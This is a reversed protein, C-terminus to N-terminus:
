EGVFRQTMMQVISRINKQVDKVAALMEDLKAM